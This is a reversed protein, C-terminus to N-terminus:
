HPVSMPFINTMLHKEIGDMMDEEQEEAMDRFLPHSTLRESMSQSVSHKNSQPTYHYEYSVTYFDQVAEGLEEVTASEKRDTVYKHFRDWLVM